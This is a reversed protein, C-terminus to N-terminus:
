AEAEKPVCVGEKGARAPASLSAFIFFATSATALALGMLMARAFGAQRGLGAAEASDIFYGMVPQFVAGGSISVGNVFGMIRGRNADEVTDRIFSQMMVSMLVGGAGYLVMGIGLAEIALPGFPFAIPVWSLAFMASSFVMFRREGMRSVFCLWGAFMGAIASSVGVIMMISGAKIRSLGIVEMLFPVGWLGQFSTLPANKLFVATGLLVAIVIEGRSVRTRRRNPEPPRSAARFDKGGMIFLTAAAIAFTVIGIAIFSARWGILEAMAALPASAVLSGINGVGLVIGIALTFDKSDMMRGFLKNAPVYVATLGLSTIGRAVIATRFGGALGMAVSGLAAITLFLGMIRGPSFRDVLYGVPLQMLAYVVFYISSLVGLETASISYERVLDEAIVAPAMRHFSVMFYALSCVAVVAWKALGTLKAQGTESM